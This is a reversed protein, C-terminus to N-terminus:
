QKSQLSLIKWCEPLRPLQIRWAPATRSPSRRRCILFGPVAKPRSCTSICAWPLPYNYCCSRWAPLVQRPKHMMKVGQEPKITGNPVDSAQHSFMQPPSSLALTQGWRPVVEYKVCVGIKHSAFDARDAADGRIKRGSQQLNAAMRTHGCTKTLRQKWPRDDCQLWQSASSGLGFQGFPVPQTEKFLRSDPSIM